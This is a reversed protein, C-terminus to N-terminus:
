LSGVRHTEASKPIKSWNQKLTCVHVCPPPPTIHINKFDTLFLWKLFTHTPPYTTANKLVTCCMPRKMCVNCQVTSDHKNQIMTVMQMANKLCPQSGMPLFTHSHGYVMPPPPTGGMSWGGGGGSWLLWRPFFRFKGNPFDQRAMEPVCVKPDWVGKRGWSRARKRVLPQRPADPSAVARPTFKDASM